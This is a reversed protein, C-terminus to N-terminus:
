RERACYAAAPDVRQTQELLGGVLEAAEEKRSKRDKGEFTDRGDLGSGPKARRSALRATCLLRAFFSPAVPPVDNGWNIRLARERPGEPTM